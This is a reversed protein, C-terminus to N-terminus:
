RDSRRREKIEGQLIEDRGQVTGVQVHQGVTLDTPEEKRPVVDCVADHEAPTLRGSFQASRPILTHSHVPFDDQCRPGDIRRMQQQQTAHAVPLMESLVVEGAYRVHGTHPLIQLVM